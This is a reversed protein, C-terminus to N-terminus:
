RVCGYKGWYIGRLRRFLKETMLDDRMLGYRVKDLRFCVADFGYGASLLYEGYLLLHGLKVGKLESVGVYVLFREVESVVGENLRRYEEVVGM